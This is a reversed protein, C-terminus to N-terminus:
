RDRQAVVPHQRYGGRIARRQFELRYAPQAEGHPILGADGDLEFQPSPPATARRTACGSPM